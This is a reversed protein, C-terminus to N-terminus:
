REKLVIVQEAWWEEFQQNTRGCNHLHHYRLIEKSGIESEIYKNIPEIIKYRTRVKPDDEYTNYFLIKKDKYWPMDDWDTPKEGLHDDWRWSNLNSYIAPWEPKPTAILEKLARSIITAIPEGAEDM